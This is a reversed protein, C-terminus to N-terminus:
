LVDSTCSGGVDHPCYHKTFVTPIGLMIGKLAVLVDAREPESLDTVDIRHFEAEEDTQERAEYYVRM